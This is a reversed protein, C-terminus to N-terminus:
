KKAPVRVAVKPKVAPAAAVPAPPAKPGKKAAVPPPPPEPEVEAAEPVEGDDESGGESAARDAKTFTRGDGWTFGRGAEGPQQEADLPRQGYYRFSTRQMVPVENVQGEIENGDDDYAQVEETVGKGDEDVMQELCDPNMCQGRVFYELRNRANNYHTEPLACDEKHRALIADQNISAGKASINGKKIFPVEITFTMERGIKYPEGKSDVLGAAKCKPCKAMIFREKTLRDRFGAEPGM